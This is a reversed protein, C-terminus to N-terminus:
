SFITSSLLEVVLEYLCDPQFVVPMSVNALHLLHFRSISTDEKATRSM